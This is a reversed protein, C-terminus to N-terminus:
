DKPKCFLTVVFGIIIAGSIGASTTAYMNGFLGYFGNEHFGEYTANVLSNGFSTIPLSMGSGIHEILIDYVGFIGLFAGIVVFLSTIHGPTLKTTDYIISAILCIIGVAMFSYFIKM